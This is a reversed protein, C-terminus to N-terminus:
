FESFENNKQITKNYQDDVMEKVRGRNDIHLKRIKNRLLREKEQGELVKQNICKDCHDELNLGRGGYNIFATQYYKFMEGCMKCKKVAPLIHAGPVQLDYQAM